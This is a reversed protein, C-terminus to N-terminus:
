LTKYKKIYMYHIKNSHIIYLIPISDYDEILEAIAFNIIQYKFTTKVLGDKYEFLLTYSLPHGYIVIHIKFLVCIIPYIFSRHYWLRFPVSGNLDTNLDDIRDM